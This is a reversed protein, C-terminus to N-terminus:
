RCRATVVYVNYRMAVVGPVGALGLGFGVKVAEVVGEVTPEAGVAGRGVEGAELALEGRKLVEVVVVAGMAGVALGGQPPSATSLDKILPFAASM